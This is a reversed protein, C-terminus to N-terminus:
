SYLLLYNLYVTSICHVHVHEYLICVHVVLTSIICEISDEKLRYVSSPLGVLLLSLRWTPMMGHYKETVIVKVSLCVM